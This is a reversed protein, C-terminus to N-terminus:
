QPIGLAKAFRATLGSQIGQLVIDETEAVLTVGELAKSQRTGMGPFAAGMGGSAEEWLKLGQPSFLWEVFLRAAYPHAAKTQITICPGNVIAPRARVWEVPAGKGQSRLVHYVYGEGLIKFEGPIM